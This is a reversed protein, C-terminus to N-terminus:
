IGWFNILYLLIVNSYIGAMVDDMVVGYGGPLRSQFYNAPFIKVIDFFRFLVFGIVIHSLTPLVLFMTWQFGVIEDIVIRPSDKKKFIREGEYSVYIALITLALVAALYCTWPLPSLLLYVPIGAVTGATGPAFPAYGSGAGSAIM